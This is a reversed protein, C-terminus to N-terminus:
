AASGPTAVAVVPQTSGGSTLFGSALCTSQACSVDQLMVAGAPAPPSSPTTSTGQVTEVLPRLRGATTRYTGVAECVQVSTCSVGTLDGADPGGANSPLPAMSAHWTTGDYQVIWAGHQATSSRFGFVGVCRNVAPCSIARAQLPDHLVVLNHPLAIKVPSLVGDALVEAVLYQHTATSDVYTGLAACDTAAACSMGGGMELDSQDIGPPVPLRVSQYHDGSPYAFYGGYSLAMCTGDPACAPAYLEKLEQYRNREEKAAAAPAPAQVFMRRLAGTANDRQLALPFVRGNYEVYYGTALCTPGGCSVDNFGVDGPYPAGPAEDAGWRTGDFTALLGYSNQEHGAAFCSRNSACTVGGIAVSGTGARAMPLVRPTAFTGSRLPIAVNEVRGAETATSVVLMCLRDSACSVRAVTKDTTGAGAPLPLTQVRWTSTAPTAWAPASLVAALVAV